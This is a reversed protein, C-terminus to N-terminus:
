STRREICARDFVELPLKVYSASHGEAAEEVQRHRIRKGSVSGLLEADVDRDQGEVGPHGVERPRGQRAMRLASRRLELSSRDGELRAEMRAGHTHRTPRSRRRERRERRRARAAEGMGGRRDQGEALSPVTRESTGSRRRSPGTADQSLARAPTTIARSHEAVNVIVAVEARGRAGSSREERYHRTYSSSGTGGVATWAAGCLQCTM